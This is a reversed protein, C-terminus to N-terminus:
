RYVIIQQREACTLITAEGRRAVRLPMKRVVVQRQEGDALKALAKSAPTLDLKLPDQGQAYHVEVKWPTEAARTIRMAEGAPKGAQTPQLQFGRETRTVVLTQTVGREPVLVDIAATKRAGDDGALLALVMMVLPLLDM